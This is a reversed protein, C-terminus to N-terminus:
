TKVPRARASTTATRASSLRPSARAPLHPHLPPRPQVPRAPGPRQSRPDTLAGSYVRICSVAGASDEDPFAGSENDKFFRLTDAVVPLTETANVVEAGNVYIKSPSPPSSTVAVTAYVNNAFVINTSLFEDTDGFFSARGDLVYVGLDNTGNSPDLVRRYGDVADLRFTTVISNRSISSPRHRLLVDLDEFVRELFGGLVRLREECHEVLV